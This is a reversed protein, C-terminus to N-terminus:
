LLSETYILLGLRRSYDLLQVILTKKCVSMGSDISIVIEVRVVYIEGWSIYFKSSFM